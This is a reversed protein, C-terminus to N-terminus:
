EPGALAAVWEQRQDRGRRNLDGRATALYCSNERGAVLKMDDGRLEASYDDPLPKDMAYTLESNENYFRGSEPVSAACQVPAHLAHCEMQEAVRRSQISCYLPRAAVSAQCDRIRVQPKVLPVDRVIAADMRAASKLEAGATVEQTRQQQRIGARRFNQNVVNLAQAAGRLDVVRDTLQARFDSAVPRVDSVAPSVKTALVANAVTRRAVGPCGSQGIRAHIENARRARELVDRGVVYALDQALAHADRADTCDEAVDDVVLIVVAVGVSCDPREVEVAEALSAPTNPIRAAVELISQPMAVIHPQESLLREFRDVDQCRLQIQRDGNVALKAAISIKVQTSM